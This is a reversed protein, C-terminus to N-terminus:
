PRTELVFYEPPEYRGGCSCTKMGLTDERQCKNCIRFKVGKMFSRGRLIQLLYVILFTVAYIKTGVVLASKLFVGFFLFLVVNATWYSSIFFALLVPMTPDFSSKRITKKIAQIDSEPRRVWFGAAREAASPRQMERLPNHVISYRPQNVASPSKGTYTRYLRYVHYVAICVTVYIIAPRYSPLGKSAILEPLIMAVAALICIQGAILIRKAPLNKPYDSVSTNHLAERYGRKIFKEKYLYQGAAIFSGGMLLLLAALIYYFVTGIMYLFSKHAYPYM